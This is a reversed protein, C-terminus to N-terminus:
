IVGIKKLYRAHMEDYIKRFFQYAGKETDFYNMRTETMGRDIYYNGPKEEARVIGPYGGYVRTIRGKRKDWEFMVEYFDKM